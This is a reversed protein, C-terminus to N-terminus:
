VQPQSCPPVMAEATFGGASLGAHIQTSMGTKWADQRAGLDVGLAGGDKETGM